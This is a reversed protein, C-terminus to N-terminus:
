NQRWKHRRLHHLTSKSWNLRLTSVGLKKSLIRLRHHRRCRRLQTFRRKASSQLSRKSRPQCQTWSPKCLIQSRRSPWSSLLHPRHLPSFLNICQPTYSRWRHSIAAIETRLCSWWSNPSGMSVATSSTPSAKRCLKCRPYRRVMARM